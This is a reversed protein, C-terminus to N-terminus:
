CTNGFCHFQIRFVKNNKFIYVQMNKYIYKKGVLRCKMNINLIVLSTNRKREKGKLRESVMFYVHARVCVCVCVCVCTHMHICLFMYVCCCANGVFCFVVIIFVVISYVCVHVRAFMCVHMHTFVFTHLCHWCFLVVVNSWSLLKLHKTLWTPQYSCTVQCVLLYYACLPTLKHEVYTVCTCCCLGSNGVTVRLQCAHLYLACSSLWLYM